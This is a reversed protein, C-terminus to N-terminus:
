LESWPFTQDFVPCRKPDIDCDFRYKCLNDCPTAYADAGLPSYCCYTATITIEENFYPCYGSVKAPRKM